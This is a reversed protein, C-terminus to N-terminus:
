PELRLAAAPFKMGLQESAVQEVEPLAARASRELLLRSQEKMQEDHDAIAAQLEAHLMRVEHTADVALVASGIIGASLLMWVAIRSFESM